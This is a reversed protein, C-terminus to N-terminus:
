YGKPLFAAGEELSTSTSVPPRDDLWKGIALYSRWRIPRGTDPVTDVRWEGSWQIDDDIMMLCWQDHFLRCPTMTMFMYRTCWEYWFHWLFFFFSFPCPCSDHVAAGTCLLWYYVSDYWEYSVVSPCPSSSFLLLPSSTFLHLPIIHSQLSYDEQIM